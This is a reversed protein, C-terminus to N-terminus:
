KAQIRAQRAVVPERGAFRPVWAEIVYEGLPLEVSRLLHGTVSRANRAQM